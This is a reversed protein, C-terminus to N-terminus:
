TQLCPCVQRGGGGGGGWSAIGSCMKVLSELQRDYALDNAFKDIRLSTGLEDPLTNNDAENFELVVTSPTVSKVTGEAVRDTLPHSRSLVVTENIKFKLREPDIGGGGVGGVSDDTTSDSARTNGAGGKKKKKKGTNSASGNPKGDASKDSTVNIKLTLRTRWKTKVRKQESLGAVCWGARVLRDVPRQVRRKVQKLEELYDLNLLTVFHGFYARQSDADLEDGVRGM